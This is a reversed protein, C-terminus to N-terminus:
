EEENNLIKNCVRQRYLVKNLKYLRINLDNIEKVLNEKDKELKDIDLYDVYKFKNQLRKLEKKDIKLKIKILSIQNESEIIIENIREELM